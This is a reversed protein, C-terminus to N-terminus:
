EVMRSFAVKACVHSTTIIGKKTETKKNSDETSEDSCDTAPNKKKVM